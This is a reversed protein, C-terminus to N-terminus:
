PPYCSLEACVDANIHRKLGLSNTIWYDEIEDLGVANGCLANRIWVVLEDENGACRRKREGGRVRREPVNVGLISFPRARLSPM